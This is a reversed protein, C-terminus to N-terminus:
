REFLVEGSAVLVRGSETEVALRGDREIRDATGAAGDLTVRRGRLFDRAGLEDYLGDLGSEQWTTYCADLRGLLMELVEERDRVSGDITRLSAAAVKTEPPLQERAQNVNLGIGVVVLERKLEALMGAVKRRDLMVDNPWKIQAALGTADEVALATALAAVLSLEPASREPPPRLLISVLVSTAPAEVWQRGFRGRGATQHDTTAIAGEPDDPGLLLQTSECEPEHRRPSGIMRTM